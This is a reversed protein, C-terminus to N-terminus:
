THETGFVLVKGLSPCCDLGDVESEESVASCLTSTTDRKGVERGSVSGTVVYKSGDATGDGTVEVGPWVDISADQASPDGYLLSEEESMVVAVTPLSDNSTGLVM